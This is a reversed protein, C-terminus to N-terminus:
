KWIIESVESYDNSILCGMGVGYEQKDFGRTGSENQRGM